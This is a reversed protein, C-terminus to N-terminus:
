VVDFIGTTYRADPDDREFQGKYFECDIFYVGPEFGGRLPLLADFSFHDDRYHQDWIAHFTHPWQHPHGRGDCKFVRLRCHGAPDRLCPEWSSSSSLSLSLSSSSSPSSSSAPVAVAAASAGNHRMYGAFLHLHHYPVHVSVSQNTLDGARPPRFEQVRPNEGSFFCLAWSIGRLFLETEKGAQTQDPGHSRAHPPSM